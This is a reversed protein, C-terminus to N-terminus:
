GDITDNRQPDFPVWGSQEATRVVRALLDDRAAVDTWTAQLRVGYVVDNRGFFAVRVSWGAGSGRADARSVDLSSALRDWIEYKPGLDEGTVSMLEIDYRDDVRDPLASQEAHLEFGTQSDFVVADLSGALSELATEFDGDRPTVHICAVEGNEVELSVELRAGSIEVEPLSLDIGLAERARDLIANLPGVPRGGDLAGLIMFDLSM